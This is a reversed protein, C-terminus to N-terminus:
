NTDTADSKKVNDVPHFEGRHIPVRKMRIVRGSIQKCNKQKYQM